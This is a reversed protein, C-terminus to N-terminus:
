IPSVVLEEFGDIFPTSWDFYDIPICQAHQKTWKHRVHPYKTHLITVWHRMLCIFWAHELTIYQTKRVVHYSVCKRRVLNTYEHSM